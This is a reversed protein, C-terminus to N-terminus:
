KLSRYTVGAQLQSVCKTTNRRMETRDSKGGPQVHGGGISLLQLHLQLLHVLLDTLLRLDAVHLHRM